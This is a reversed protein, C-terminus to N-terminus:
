RYKNSFAQVLMMKENYTTLSALKEKFLEFQDLFKNFCSIEKNRIRSSMKDKQHAYRVMTIFHKEKRDDYIADIMNTININNYDFNTKM